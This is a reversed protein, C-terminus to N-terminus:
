NFLSVFGSGLHSFRKTCPVKESRPSSGFPPRVRSAAAKIRGFHNPTVKQRIPRLEIR